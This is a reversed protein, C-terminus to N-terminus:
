RITVGLGLQQKSGDCSTRIFILDFVGKFSVGPQWYFTGARDISSGVPLAGLTKGDVRYGAWTAPCAADPEGADLRLAIRDTASFSVRRVGGSTTGLTRATGDLHQAVVAADSPPTSRLSETHRGAEVGGDIPGQADASNAVTFYRSGIGDGAGQSDYVIWALTHQGEALATTDIARYGVAGGSNAYGPFLAAIDGRFQNYVPAGLSVGDVMVFITSGDTPIIKPQPTLAWGFNVYSAGAITAGQAPTDITGFPLVATGNAAVITRTGLLMRNGEFDDAYAHLQFVGNGQNPLMNTLVLFGWGARDNLPYTPYAARVDPRAGPVFVADGLYIQGAEGGVPDRFIQVRRVELDDLAWGGLALSGSVQVGNQPTELVGFPATSVVGGQNVMFARRGISVAASRAALGPNPAVNLVVQTATSSVVTVFTGALDVTLDGCSDGIAVTVDGGSAAVSASTPSLTFACAQVDLTLRRATACGASDIASVSIESRGASSPTGALVGDAALALGDPLNGNTIRFSMPGVGGTVTFVQRYARGVVGTALRSPSLTMAGCAPVSFNLNPTESGIGFAIPAGAVVECSASTCPQEQYIEAGHGTTAEARARYSGAALNIRYRGDAGTTARGALAGSATFFSVPVDRVITGATDAVTGSGVGGQAIAFDINAVDTAAVVVPTGLRVDCTACGSNAYIEDVFGRDNQTRLYYTGAGVGLFEYSGEVATLARKILRGDSGFLEVSITSLPVNGAENRVTGSLRVGPDTGFDLTMLQPSGVVIPRGSTPPCGPCLGRGHLRGSWTAYYTGPPVGVLEVAALVGGLGKLVNQLEVGRADFLRLSLVDTFVATSSSGLTMLFNIGATTAGTTVNVPVARRPDCDVTVCPAGGYLIDIFLGGHPAIRLPAAIPDRAVLFYQGTRLGQITYPLTTTTLLSCSSEVEHSRVLTGASDYVYINPTRLWTNPNPLDCTITGTIAGGTTLAFNIGSTTAGSTVNVAAITGACGVCINDFWENVYNGPDETRVRYSGPSLGGFAYHGGGDTASLAVLAEGAYLGVRTGAIPLTTAQDIVTGSIAGTPDLAFDIGGTTAGSTV